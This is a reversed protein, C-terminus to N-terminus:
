DFLSGFKKNFDSMKIGSKKNEFLDIKKGWTEYKVKDTVTAFLATVDSNKFAGIRYYTAYVRLVTWNAITEYDIGAGIVISSMIDSYTQKDSNQQALERGADIFEQIEPNPSVEEEQLMNMDMVLERYYNFLNEDNLIKEVVELDDIVLSFVTFYAARFEQLNDVIAFLKEEKLHELADNFEQEAKESLKKYQYYIHLSNLSIMSIDRLNEIYEMYTLFRVKCLETNVPRGFIYFERDM